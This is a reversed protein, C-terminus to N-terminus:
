IIEKFLTFKIIKGEDIHAAIAGYGNEDIGFLGNIIGLLGVCHIECPDDEGIFIDPHGSQITPHDALARNCEVRQGVLKTMADGDLQLAENLLDVADQPTISQRIMKGDKKPPCPRYQLRICRSAMDPTLAVMGM